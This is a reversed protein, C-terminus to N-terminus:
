GMHTSERTTEHTKANHYPIVAHEHTHARQERRVKTMPSALIAQHTFQQPEPTTWRLFSDEESVTAVNAAYPRTFVVAGPCVRHVARRAIGSLTTVRSAM